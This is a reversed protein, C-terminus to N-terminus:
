CKPFNWLWVRHSQFFYHSSLKAQSAIAQVVFNIQKLSLSSFSKLHLKPWKKLERMTIERPPSSLFRPTLKANFAHTFIVLNLKKVRSHIKWYDSSWLNSIKEWGHHSICTQYFFEVFTRSLYLGLSDMSIHSPTDKLNLNFSQLTGKANQSIRVRSKIYEFFLPYFIWYIWCSIKSIKFINLVLKFNERSAQQISEFILLLSVSCLFHLKGNLIEETFGASNTM